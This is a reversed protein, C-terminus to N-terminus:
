AKVRKFQTQSIQKRCESFREGLLEEVRKNDMVSKQFTIEKWVKGDSLQIGGSARARAKLADEVAEVAKKLAPLQEAMLADNEISLHATTWVPLQKRIEERVPFGSAGGPVNLQVHAADLVQSTAPCGGRAPCFRCHDGSVAPADSIQIYMLQLATGFKYLEEATTEFTEPYCGKERVYVIQLRVKGKWNRIKAACLGLFKLQHNDSIDEVFEPSGTKWDRVVLAGDEVRVHDSTGAIESDALAGYERNIDIGLLCAQGTVVDYSYAEEAVGTGPGITATPGIFAIASGILANIRASKSMPLLGKNVYAAIGAHVEQGEEGAGTDIAPTYKVDTRAWWLCSKARSLSSATLKM